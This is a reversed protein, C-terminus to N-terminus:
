NQGIALANFFEHRYSYYTYLTWKKIKSKLNCRDGEGSYYSFPGAAIQEELKVGKYHVTINKQKKEFFLM